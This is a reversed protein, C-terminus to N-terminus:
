VAISSIADEDAASLGKDNIIQMCAHDFLPLETPMNGGMFRKFDAKLEALHSCGDCRPDKGFFTRLAYLRRSTITRDDGERGSISLLRKRDVLFRRANWRGCFPQRFMELTERVFADVRVQARIDAIPEPTLVEILPIELQVVNVAAEAAARQDALWVEDSRFAEEDRRRHCGDDLGNQLPDIARDFGSDAVDVEWASKWHRRKVYVPAGGRVYVQKGCILFNEYIKRQAVALAADHGDFILRRAHEARGTDAPNEKSVPALHWLTWGQEIEELCRAVCVPGNPYTMGDGSRKPWWLTGDYRLLTLVAASRLYTSPHGFSFRRRIFKRADREPFTIRFANRAEEATVSRVAGTATAKFVETRENRCRRPVFTRLYPLGMTVPRLKM